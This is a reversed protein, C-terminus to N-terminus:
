RIARRTSIGSAAMRFSSAIAPGISPRRTCASSSSRRFVLVTKRTFGTSGSRRDRSTRVPSCPTPASFRRRVRSWTRPSITGGAEPVASGSCRSCFRRAGGCRMRPWGETTSTPESAMGVLSATTTTSGSRGFRSGDISATTRAAHAARHRVAPGNAGRAPTGRPSGASRRSPHHRHDEVAESRRRQTRPVRSRRPQVTRARGLRQPDLDSGSHQRPDRPAGDSAARRRSTEAGRHRDGPQVVPRDLWGARAGPRCARPVLPVRRRFSSAPLGGRLAARVRRVPDM